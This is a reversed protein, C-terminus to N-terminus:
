LVCCETVERNGEGSEPQAFCAKREEKVKKSQSPKCFTPKRAVSKTQSAPLVNQPETNEASHIHYQDTPTEADSNALVPKFASKQSHNFTSIGALKKVPGESSPIVRKKAKEQLSCVNPAKSRAAKFVPVRKVAPQSSSLGSTSSTNINKEADRKKQKDLVSAQHLSEFSSFIHSDALNQSSPLTDEFAISGDRNMGQFVSGCM